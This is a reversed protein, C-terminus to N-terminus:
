VISTQKRVKRVGLYVIAASILGVCFYIYLSMNNGDPPPASPSPSPSGSPLSSTSPSVTATPSPTPTPTSKPTANSTPAPTTTSTQIPSWIATATKPSDMLISNSPSYNGSAGDSWMTFVYQSVVTPIITAYAITSEDYWGAGGTNGYASNVTLYYQTKWTWAISSPANITFSSATITGLAPVNGTGTWGTCIFQTGVQATPPSAEANVTTGAPYWTEGAPPQTIGLNTTVTLKYETNWSATQIIPGNMTVTIPNITGTYSNTGSGTWGTWSARTDVSTPPSSTITVPTGAEYWQQGISPTITGSNSSLTLKYEHVWFATETVPSNMTVVITNNTGSYSSSGVGTWNLWSFREDTGTTPPSATINVNTGAAYWYEGMLPTTAGFNTTVTLKYLPNFTATVTKNSDMTINETNVSGGLDGSWSSFAWGDDAKATLNVLSGYPYAMQEPLKTVMGHGVYNVTLSYGLIKVLANYWVDAMKEYGALNPHIGDSTMDTSYNLANEMDVVVIKDGSAIRNQAMTQLTDDFSKTTANWSPSDSRLIIRALIVTVQSHVSEWLNINDLTAAVEAVVAAANQGNQIDNTGIHVLVIDAPNSNLWGIVNDRIENVEYSLHGENDNDFGTGNKQSGVFDVSFGSNSLDLFLSRRYGELEPFGVTISDGLPMIKVIAPSGKAEPVFFFFSALMVFIAVLGLLKRTNPRILVTDGM